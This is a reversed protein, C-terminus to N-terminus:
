FQKGARAIYRLARIGPLFFYAGGRVATFRPIETVIQRIGGKVPLTFNAARLGAITKRNGVIPDNEDRLGDFTSSQLWSGQIFEFQRGINANLCLFHLGSPPEDEQPPSLRQLHTLTPGYERGRRLLRHFRTSAVRDKPCIDEGSSLLRDLALTRTLRGLLNSPTGAPLDGNRPNARRIHAGFPCATGDPDADFTFQNLQLDKPDPGVGNISDPTAAVLPEGTIRRGVFSEALAKALEPHNDTQESLFRWFGHVDQHIQRIVLYSGNRGLDKIAPQDEADPLEAQADDILPRDTYLGYENPYGLVFEGLMSVNEYSIRDCSPNRRREWDIVPSSVGDAFGFPEIDGMDNTTLRNVVTCGAHTMALELSTKWEQFVDTRAYILAVFDPASDNSGGWLWQDPSNEDVDGLRRSRNEEGAMGSLFESSFGSLVNESVKLRRLGQSTFALQLAKAPPPEQAEASTVPAEYLWRSAAVADDIRLLLFVAETLKGYGFRLLGQMDNYDANSVPPM